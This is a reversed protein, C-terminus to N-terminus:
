CRTSSKWLLIWAFHTPMEESEFNVPEKFRILVQVPIKLNKVTKNLLAVGHDINTPGKAIVLNLAKEIIVKQENNAEVENLINKIVDHLDDSQVDLLFITKEWLVNRLISCRMLNSSKKNDKETM